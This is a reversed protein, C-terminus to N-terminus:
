KTKHTKQSQLFPRIKYINRQSKDKESLIKHPEDGNIFTAATWENKKKVVM